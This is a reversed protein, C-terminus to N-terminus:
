ELVFSTDVRMTLMPLGVHTAFGERKSQTASLYWDAQGIAKIKEKIYNAPKGINKEMMRFIKQQSKKIHDAGVKIDAPNGWYAGSANHVLLEANPGIYRRKGFTFLGAGCSMAKSEAITVVEGPYSQICDVMAMLSDICGGYSDIVVPVIPQSEAVTQFDKL